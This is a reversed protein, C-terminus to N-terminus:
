VKLCTGSTTLTLKTLLPELRDSTSFGLTQTLGASGVNRLSAQPFWFINKQDTKDM